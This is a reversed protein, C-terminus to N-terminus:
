AISLGLRRIEARLSSDIVQSGVKVITGGLIDPDIKTVIEVGNASTMAKV